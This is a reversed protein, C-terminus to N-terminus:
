ISQFGAWHCKSPFHLFNFVEYKGQTTWFSSSIRTYPIHKRQFPCSVRNPKSLRLGCSLRLGEGVQPEWLTSIPRGKLFKARKQGLNFGLETPDALHKWILASQYKNVRDECSHWSEIHTTENQRGLDNLLNVPIPFMTQPTFTIDVFFTGIQCAPLRSTPGFGLTAKAYNVYLCLFFVRNNFNM